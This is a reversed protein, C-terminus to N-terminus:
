APPRAPTRRLGDLVLGDGPLAPIRSLDIGVDQTALRWDLSTTMLRVFSKILDITAWEGPCRHDRAHDGAGQPVLSWADPAAALFRELRFEGPAEWTGAHLDTGYLDFLVWRGRPLEVGRWTVPECAQGGVFPFFPTTRRVEQVFAEREAEDVAVRGQWGPHRDLALTAFVMFRAIAVTPRLLNILEVAAVSATLLAGDPDRHGAVVQLPAGPPPTLTGDRTEEILQRAWRETRRRLWLAHWNRPGAKGAGAVMVGLERARAKASAEDLPVGAWACVARTLVLELADLLDIRGAAEWHPLAATWAEEFRAALAARREEDQLLSLFMAKRHRHAAGDLTGVSGVDQLLRLVQPPMAGQRTFRGNGYFLRAAEPGRLCVLRRLMLRTEFGDTAFADCRRSIFPYGEKMLSLTADVTRERPLRDM